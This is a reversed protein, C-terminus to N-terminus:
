MVSAGTTPADCVGAQFDCLSPLFHNSGRLHSAAPRTEMDARTCSTARKSPDLPRAASSSTSDQRSAAPMAEHGGHLRQTNQREALPQLLQPSLEVGDRLRQRGNSISDCTLLPHPAMDRAGWGKTTNSTTDGSVPAHHWCPPPPVRSPVRSRAITTSDDYNLLRM